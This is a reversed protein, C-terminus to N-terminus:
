GVLYEGSIENHFVVTENQSNQYKLQVPYKKLPNLGNQELTVVNGLDDGEFKYQKDEDFVVAEIKSNMGALVQVICPKSNCWVVNQDMQNLRVKFSGTTFGNEGFILDYEGEEGSVELYCSDGQRHSKLLKSNQRASLMIVNCSDTAFKFVQIGGAKAQSSAQQVLFKVPQNSIDKNGLFISLDNTRSIATVSARTQLSIDLTRQEVDARIDKNDLKNAPLSLSALGNAIPAEEVKGNYQFKVSGTDAVLGNRDVLGSTLLSIELEDKSNVGVQPAVVFLNAPEGSTQNLLGHFVNSGVEFRLLSKKNDRLKTLNWDFACSGASEVYEATQEVTEDSSRILTLKCSEVDKVNIASVGVQINSDGSVLAPFNPLLLKDSTEKVEVTRNIIENNSEDMLRYTLSDDNFTSSPLTLKNFGDTINVGSIEQRLDDKHFIQLKYNFGNALNGYQDTVPGVILTNAYGKRAPEFELGLNGYKKAEGAAIQFQRSQNIKTNIEPGTFSVLLPGGRTIKNKTVFVRCNGDKIEGTVTIPVGASGTPYLNASCEGQAIPNDNRDMVNQLSFSIDQGIKLNDYNDVMVGSGALGIQKDDFNLNLFDSLQGDGTKIFVSYFGGKNFLSYPVLAQFTGNEVALQQGNIFSTERYEGTGRHWFGLTVKSSALPNGGSTISDASLAVDSGTRLILNGTTLNILQSGRRTMSIEKSLQSNALKVSYVGDGSAIQSTNINAQCSRNNQVAATLSTVMKDGSFVEFKCQTDPNVTDNFSVVRKAMVPVLGNISTAGFPFDLTAQSSPVFDGQNGSVQFNAVSSFVSESEDMFLASYQGKNLDNVRVQCKGLADFDCTQTSVVQGSEKQSVYLKGTLKGLREAPQNLEFFVEEGPNFRDKLTSLSLASAGLSKSGDLSVDLRNTTIENQGLKNLFRIKAMINLSNIQNNQLIGSITYEVREGSSLLPLKFSNAEAVIKTGSDKQNGGVMETWNVSDKTTFLDVNVNNLSETISTNQLTIAVQMKDGIQYKKNEVLRIAANVSATESAKASDGGSNLLMYGLLGGVLVYAGIVSVVLQRKRYFKNLRTSLGKRGKPVSSIQYYKEDAM